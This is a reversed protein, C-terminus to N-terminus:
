IRPDPVNFLVTVTPRIKLAGLLASFPKIGFDPQHLECAGELVGDGEKLCVEIERQRGCLTLTGLLRLPVATRDVRGIFNISPHRRTALVDRAINREIKVKDADSVAAHDEAGDRMACVVKLSASDFVGVVREGERDYSIDFREVRIKLDHAIPSLIGEKYTLIYVKCGTHTGGGM